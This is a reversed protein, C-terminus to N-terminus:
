EACPACPEQRCRLAFVREPPAISCQEFQEVGGAAAGGLDRMQLGDVHVQVLPVALALAFPAFLPEHRQASLRDFGNAVVQCVFASCQRGVGAGRWGPQQQRSATLSQAPLRDPFQDFAIRSCAPEGVGDTGVGQPVTEGGMQEGAAGVQTLDLFQQAVGADGRSLDVGMDLLRSELLHVTLKM